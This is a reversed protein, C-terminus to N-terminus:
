SGGGKRRAASVGMQLLPQLTRVSPGPQAVVAAVADSSREPDFTWGELVLGVLSEDRVLAVNTIGLGALESVAAPELVSEAESAPLVVVVMAM